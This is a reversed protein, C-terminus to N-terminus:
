HSSHGIGDFRKFVYNQMWRSETRRVSLYRKRVKDLGSPNYWRLKSIDDVIENYWGSIELRKLLYHGGLIDIHRHLGEDLSKEVSKLLADVTWTEYGNMCDQVTSSMEGTEAVRRTFRKYLPAEELPLLHEKLLKFIRSSLHHKYMVCDNFGEILLLLSLHGPYDLARMNIVTNQFPASPHFVSVAHLLRQELEVESTDFRVAIRRVHIQHLALHLEEQLEIIDSRSLYIVDKEVHTALAPTHTRRLQVHLNKLSAVIYDMEVRRNVCVQYELTLIHKYLSTIQTYADPPFTRTTVARLRDLEGKAWWMVSTIEESM